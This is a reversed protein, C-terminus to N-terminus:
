ASTIGEIKLVEKTTNIVLFNNEFLCFYGDSTNQLLSLSQYVHKGTFKAFTKLVDKKCFVDPRFSSIHSEHFAMEIDQM